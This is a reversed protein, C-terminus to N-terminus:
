GPVPATYVGAGETIAARDIAAQVLAEFLRLDTGQEPHWQVALAFGDAREVAEVTGDAHHASATLGAGLRHAAQHHYTPVDLPGEGLLAALRTDPVPLVPHTGYAGPTPAHGEHGVLDPLHQVLDGGCAVNLLQMGRCIGLLPLGQELAAAILALEWDDRETPAPDTRPDRPAGYRAPDVDPGGSILLGGLHSVVDDATAPDGPPLMAAVGGARQVQATYQVPLLAAQSETWVGWVAPVLYTTVGILPRNM